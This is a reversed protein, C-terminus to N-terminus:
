QCHAIYIYYSRTPETVIGRLHVQTFKEPSAFFKTRSFRTQHWVNIGQNLFLLKDIVPLLIPILDQMLYQSFTEPVSAWSCHGVTDIVM